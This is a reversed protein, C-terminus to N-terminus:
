EFIISDIVENLPELSQPDHIALGILKGQNEVYTWTIMMPVGGGGIQTRLATKGGVIVEEFGNDPCTSCQVMVLDEPSWQAADAVIVHSIGPGGSSTPDEGLAFDEYTRGDDATIVNPGAIDWGAPLDLSFTGPGFIPVVPIEAPEQPIPDNPTQTPLSAANLNCGSVLFLGALLWMLLLIKKM